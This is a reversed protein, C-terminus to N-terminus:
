CRCQANTAIDSFHYISRMLLNDGLKRDSNMALQKLYRDFGDNRDVSGKNGKKVYKEVVISSNKREIILIPRIRQDSM